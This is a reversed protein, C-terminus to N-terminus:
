QTILPKYLLMALRAKLENNDRLYSANKLDTLLADFFSIQMLWNPDQGSRRWTSLMVDLVLELQHIHATPNSIELTAFAVADDFLKEM